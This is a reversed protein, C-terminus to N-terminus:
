LIEPSSVNQLLKHVITYAYTYLNSNKILSAATGGRGVLGGPILGGICLGVSTAPLSLEDLSELSGAAM